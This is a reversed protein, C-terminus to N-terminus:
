NTRKLRSMFRSARSRSALAAAILTRVSKPSRPFLTTRTVARFSSRMPSERQPKRLPLSKARPFQPRKPQPAASTKVKTFAPKKATKPAVKKTKTETVAATKAAAAKTITTKKGRPM